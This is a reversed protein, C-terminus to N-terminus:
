RAESAVASRVFGSPNLLAGGKEEAESLIELARDPNISLLADLAAEDFPHAGLGRWLGMANLQLLKGQVCDQMFELNPRHVPKQGVGKVVPAAKPPKKAASETRVPLGGAAKRAELLQAKAGPVNATALAAKRTEQVPGAALLQTKAGPGNSTAFTKVIAPKAIAAGVKAGPTSATLGPPPPKTAAPKQPKTKEAQLAQPASLPSHQPSAANTAGTSSAAAAGVKATSKSGLRAVVFQHLRVKPSSSAFEQLVAAAKVAEASALMNLTTATMEHGQQRLEVLLKAVVAPVKVKATKQPGPAAAAGQGPSATTTTAAAQSDGAVKLLRRKAPSGQSDKGPPNVHVPRKVGKGPHQGEPGPQSPASTTRAPPAKTIKATSVGAPAQSVASVSRAPPASAPGSSKGATDRAELIYRSPNRINSASVELESLAKRAVAPPMEMLAAVAAPSIGTGRTWLGAKNLNVAWTSLESAIDEPTEQQVLVAPRIHSAAHGKGGKAGKFPITTPGKGKGAAGGIPVAGQSGSHGKGVAWTGGGIVSAAPREPITQKGPRHPPAVHMPQKFGQSQHQLPAPKLLPVKSVAPKPLASVVAPKSSSSSSAEMEAWKACAAAELQTLAEDDVAEAEGEVEM